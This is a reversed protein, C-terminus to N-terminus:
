KIEFTVIFVTLDLHMGFFLPFFIHLLNVTWDRSLEGIKHAIPKINGMARIFLWRDRDVANVGAAM